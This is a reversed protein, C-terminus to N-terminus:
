RAVFEFPAEVRCAQPLGNVRYPEYRSKRACEIAAADLARNGSSRKVEVNEARGSETISVSLLINGGIHKAWESRPYELPARFLYRAAIASRGAGRAQTASKGASEGRPLGPKNKPKPAPATRTTTEEPVTSRPKVLNAEDEHPTQAPVRDTKEEDAEVAPEPASTTEESDNTTDNVTPEANTDTETEAAGSPEGADLAIEFEAAVPLASHGGQPVLLFGAHLGAAGLLAFILDAKM